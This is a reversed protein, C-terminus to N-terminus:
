ESVGTIKTKMNNPIEIQLQNMVNKNLIIEIKKPFEVPLSNISDGKLIKLVIKATQQGLDFQNPGLAVFAGQKILDTDSTFVPVHNKNSIKTISEFASLATNDNNIFIADVKGMLYQTASIIESSNNATSPIINIGIIKAKIKSEELLTVSNVEGPNYIIGLNKLKPMFGKIINLLQDVNIYNSVGTVRGEPQSLNKVLRASIPDTVTSFVVPLDKNRSESVLAQSAQTGIGILVQPKSGVFKQAIQSALAPNGQATEYRFSVNAEKLVKEIGARTANLAPHEVIQLILVQSQDKNISTSQTAFAFNYVLLLPIVFLCLIFLRRNQIPWLIKSFTILPHM